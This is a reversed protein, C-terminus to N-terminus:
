AVWGAQRRRRTPERDHDVQGRQETVLVQAAAVARRGEVPGPVVDAAAVHQRAGVVEVGVTVEVHAAGHGPGGARRVGHAEADARVAVPGPDEPPAAARHPLAALVREGHQDRHAVLLRTRRRLGLAAPLPLEGRQEVLEVLAGRLGLLAGVLRERELDLELRRGARRGVAAPRALHGAGAARQPHPRHAAAGAVVPHAAADGPGVHGVEVAVARVRGLLDDREVVQERPVAHRHPLEVEAGVAVHRQPGEPGVLHRQDPPGDRGPHRQQGPGPQGRHREGVRDGELEVDVGRGRVVGLQPEPDREVTLPVAGGVEVHQAVAPVGHREPEGVTVPPRHRQRRQGRRGAGLDAPQELAAVRDDHRGGVAVVQDRLVEGAQLPM